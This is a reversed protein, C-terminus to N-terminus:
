EQQPTRAKLFGAMVVGAIFNGLLVAPWGPELSVKTGSLHLAASFLTTCATLGYLGGSLLTKPRETIRFFEVLVIGLFIFAMLHLVTFMAMRVLKTGAATDAAPPGLGTLAQALFDPTQLPTFLLVDYLLFLVMIAGGALLGAVAGDRLDGYLRDRYSEAAWDGSDHFRVM